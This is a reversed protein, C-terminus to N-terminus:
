HEAQGPRAEEWTFLKLAAFIALALSWMDLSAPWLIGATTTALPMSAAGASRVKPRSVQAIGVVERTAIPSNSYEVEGHWLAM